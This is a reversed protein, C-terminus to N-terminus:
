TKIVKLHTFVKVYGCMRLIFKLLFIVILTTTEHHCHLLRRGNPSQSSGTDHYTGGLGGYAIM